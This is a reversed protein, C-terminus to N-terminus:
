EGIRLYSDSQVKVEITHGNNEVELPTPSYHFALHPLDGQPAAPLDIPSQRTGAECTYNAPQCIEWWHGPGTAGTYSYSCDAAGASTSALTLTLLVFLFSTALSKKIKM